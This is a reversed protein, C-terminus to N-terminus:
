SIRTVGEHAIEVTEIAIESATANFDPATYKRHFAASRAKKQM